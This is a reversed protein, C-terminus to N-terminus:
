QANSSNQPFTKLFLYWWWARERRQPSLFVLGLKHQYSLIPAYWCNITITIQLFSCKQIHWINLTMRTAAEWWCHLLLSSKAQYNSLSIMFRHSGSPFQNRSHQLAASGDFAWPTCSRSVCTCRCRCRSFPWPPSIQAFSFTISLYLSEFKIIFFVVKEFGARLCTIPLCDTLWAKTLKYVGDM